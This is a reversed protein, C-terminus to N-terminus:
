AAIPRWKHAMEVEKKAFSLLEEVSDFRKWAINELDMASNNEAIKDALGDLEKEIISLGKKIEELPASVLVSLLYKIKSEITVCDNEISIQEFANFNISNMKIGREERRGDGPIM